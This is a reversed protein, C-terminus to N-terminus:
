KTLILKGLRTCHLRYIDGNHAIEVTRAGRLLDTSPIPPASQCAKVHQAAVLQIARNDNATHPHMKEGKSTDPGRAYTADAAHMRMLRAATVYAAAQPHGACEGEFLRLQSSGLEGAAVGADGRGHKWDSHLRKVKATCAALQQQSLSSFPQSVGQAHAAHAYALVVIAACLISPKNM